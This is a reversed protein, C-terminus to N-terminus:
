RELSAILHTHNYKRALDVATLGAKSKADTHAGSTLLLDIMASDGFDISAAWLLPTMGMKDVHNVDAGQEILFRAMEVQNGLAARGLPSVGSGDTQNVSAGIGVLARAVALNGYRVAGMLPTTSSTGILIMPDEVQGGADRLQPLIEANGAYAALFLPHANFLPASEGQPARVQAGHELLLRIAASSDQYQAAVMLATYKTKARANVQAGRDLLLKM